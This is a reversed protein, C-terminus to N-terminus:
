VIKESLFELITDVLLITNDILRSSINLNFKKNPDPIDSVVNISIVKKGFQNGLLYLASTEMDIAIANKNRAKTLLEETERFIADTTYIAGKKFPINKQMLFEDLINLLDSDTSIIEADPDYHPTTGDGCIAKDALVIDGVKMDSSLGGCFDVKIIYKSKTQHLAEMIVAAAPAGMTMPVITINKEKFKGRYIKGKEKLNSLRKTFKKIIMGVVPIIVIESIVSPKCNFVMLAMQSKEDMFKLGLKAFFSIIKNKLKPM